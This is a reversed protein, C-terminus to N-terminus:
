RPVVHVEQVGHVAEDPVPPHRVVLVLYSQICHTKQFGADCSGPQDLRGRMAILTSSKQPSPARILKGRLPYLETGNLCIDYGAYHASRNATEMELPRRCQFRLEDTARFAGDEIDNKIQPRFGSRVSLPEPNPQGRVIGVHKIDRFPTGM